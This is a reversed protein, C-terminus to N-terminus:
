YGATLYQSAMISDIYGEQSDISQYEALEEKFINFQEDRESKSGVVKYAILAGLYRALLQRFVPDFKATDEIDAIYVIDVSDNDSVIKGGEIKYADPGVRTPANSIETTENFPQAYSSSYREELGTLALRLFDSPLTFQNGFNFAPTTVERNLSARQTAFNWNHMRLLAQRASDYRLNCEIANPTDETLSTIYDDAGINQLAENCIQVKSM